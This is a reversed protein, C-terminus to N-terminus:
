AQATRPMRMERAMPARTTAAKAAAGACASTKSPRMPKVLKRASGLAPASPPSMKLMFGSPDSTRRSVGLGASSWCGSQDGPPM